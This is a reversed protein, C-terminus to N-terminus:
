AGVANRQVLRGELFEVRKQLRRLEIVINAGEDGLLEGLVQRRIEPSERLAQVMEKISWIVVLRETRQSALQVAQKDGPSLMAGGAM